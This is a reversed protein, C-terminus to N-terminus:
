GPALRDLNGAARRQSQALGAQDAGGVTLLQRHQEALVAARPVRLDDEGVVFALGPRVRAFQGPRQGAVAVDALVAGVAPQEDREAVRREDTRSAAVPDAPDASV